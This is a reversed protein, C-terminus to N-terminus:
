APELPLLYRGRGSPTIMSSLFFVLIVHDYLSLSHSMGNFGVKNSGKCSKM